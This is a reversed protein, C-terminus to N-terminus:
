INEQHATKASHTLDKMNDTLVAYLHAMKQGLEPLVIKAYTTWHASLERLAVKALQIPQLIVFM